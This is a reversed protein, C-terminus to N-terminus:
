IYTICPSVPALSEGTTTDITAVYLTCQITISTSPINTNPDVVRFMDFDVSLEGISHKTFEGFIDTNVSCSSSTILVDNVSCILPLIDFNFKYLEGLSARLTVPTGVPVSDTLTAQPDGRAHIYMSGLVGQEFLVDADPIGYNGETDTSLTTVLKIKSCTMLSNFDADVNFEDHERLSVQFQNYYSLGCTTMPLELNHPVTPAESPLVIQFSCEPTVEHGNLTLHTMNFSPPIYLKAQDNTCSVIQPNSPTEITFLLSGLPNGNSHLAELKYSHSGSPKLTVVILKVSNETNLVHDISVSQLPNSAQDVFNWSDVTDSDTAQFYVTNDVNDFAKLVNTTTGWVNRQLDIAIQAANSYAFLVFLLLLNYM